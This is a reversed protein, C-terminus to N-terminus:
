RLLAAPVGLAAALLAHCLRLMFLQQIRVGSERWVAANQLLISLGGFSCAGCLLPFVWPGNLATLAKAGSTIELLCQLGAFLGAPLRPLACAAMKVSVSGLMMCLCVPPLALATDRILGVCSRPAAPASGKPAKGPFILGTLLAGLVHCAFVLMGSRASGLWQSLAGMFFMPSVTGTLAARHLAERKELGPRQMLKAGGPSGCCLCLLVESAFPPRLKQALVQACFLFPGLLPIVSFAWLRMAALAAEAAEGPFCLMAGMLAGLPICIVIGVGDVEACKVGRLPETHRSVTM